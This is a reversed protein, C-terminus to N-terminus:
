YAFRSYNGVTCTNCTNKDNMLSGSGDKNLTLISKPTNTSGSNTIVVLLSGKPAANQFSNATTHMSITGIIVLLIIAMGLAIWLRPRRWLNGKPTLNYAHERM